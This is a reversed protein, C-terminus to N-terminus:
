RQQELILSKSVMAPPAQVETLVGSWRGPQDRASLGPQQNAREALLYHWAPSRHPPLACLGVGGSQDSGRCSPYLFFFFLFLVVSGM